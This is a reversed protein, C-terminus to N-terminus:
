KKRDSEQKLADRILSAIALGPTQGPTRSAVKWFDEGLEEAMVRFVELAFRAATAEKMRAPASGGWRQFFSKLTKPVRVYIYADHDLELNKRKEPKASRARKSIM